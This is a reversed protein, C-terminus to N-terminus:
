RCSQVKRRKKVADSDSAGVTRIGVAVCAVGRVGQRGQVFSHMIRSENLQWSKKKSGGKNVGSKKSVSAKTKQRKDWVIQGRGHHRIDRIAM